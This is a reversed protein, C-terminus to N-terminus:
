GVLSILVVGLTMGLVGLLRMMTLREKLLLGGVIVGLMMGVERTPAVYALPAQTMAFLVLIFALPSGVSVVALSKRIQASAFLEKVEDRWGKKMVIFPTFVMARVFLSPFYFTIPNLGTAQQVAFADCFTYGAIFLGTLSGWLVGAKIRLDKATSEDTSVPLTLLVIALLISGIGIWGWFTPANGLFVIAAIVTLLPGMGRATPYVISYDSHRYGQQLVVGYCVHIPASLFIVLWGISTINAFAQSDWILLAPVTVVATMWYVVWWFTRNANAKKLYYNWTAHVLAALLVLGLASLPM